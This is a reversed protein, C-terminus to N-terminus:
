EEDQGADEEKVWYEQLDGVGPYMEYFARLFKAVASRMAPTMLAALAKVRGQHPAHKNEPSSPDLFTYEISSFLELAEDEPGLLCLEALRPLFYLFAGPNFWHLVDGHMWVQGLTIDELPQGMFIDRAVEPYDLSIEHVEGEKPRPVHAFAAKLATVADKTINQV